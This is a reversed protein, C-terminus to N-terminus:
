RASSKAREVIMVGPIELQGKTDKVLKQIAADIAERVKANDKVKKFAKAYDTVTSIHETGFSVTAGGDSRVPAARVPEPPPPPLAAELNNARALDELKKREAAALAERARQQKLQEDAYDDLLDQVRSKGSSIRAILANKEADVARGADLYPKKIKVHVGDVLQEAARLAKVLTGCKGVQEENSCVARHVAGLDSAKEPDSNVKGLLEDLKTMFDARESLLAERFEAPIREALPAENNGIVARPNPEEKKEPWPAVDAFLPKPNTAM